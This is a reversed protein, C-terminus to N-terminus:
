VTGDTQQRQHRADLAAAVRELADDRVLRNRARRARGPPNFFLREQFSLKVETGDKMVVLMLPHEGPIAEVRSIDDLLATGRDIKVSLSKEAAFVGWTRSSSDKPRRVTEEVPDFVLRRDTLFLM